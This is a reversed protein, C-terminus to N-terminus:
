LDADEMIPTEEVSPMEPEAPMDGGGISKQYGLAKLVELVESCTPFMRGSTRKYADLAQMFEIEENNYDRECTTPDIQRRRAVKARRETPVAEEKRRRDM